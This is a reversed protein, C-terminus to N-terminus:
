WPTRRDAASDADSRQGDCDRGRRRRDAQDRELAAFGRGGLDGGVAYPEDVQLAFAHL